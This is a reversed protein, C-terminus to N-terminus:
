IQTRLWLSLLATTKGARRLNCTKHKKNKGPRSLLLGPRFPGVAARLNRAGSRPQQVCRRTGALDAAISRLARILGAEQLSNFGQSKYLDFPFGGLWWVVLGSWWTSPLQDFSGVFYLVLFVLRQPVVRSAGHFRAFSRQDPQFLDNIGWAFSQSEVSCAPLVIEPTLHVKGLNLVPKTNVLIRKTNTLYQTTSIPSYQM